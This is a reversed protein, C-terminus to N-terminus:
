KKKPHKSTDSSIVKKDSGNIQLIFYEVDNQMNQPIQVNMMEIGRQPNQATNSELVFNITIYEKTQGTLNDVVISNVQKNAPLDVMLQITFTAGPLQHPTNAYIALEGGALMTNDVRTLNLATRLTTIPNAM